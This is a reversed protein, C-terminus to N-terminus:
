DAFSAIVAAADPESLELVAAGGSTTRPVVPLDVSEPSMGRADGALRLADLLTMEDDIRLGPGLAGAVARITLPNRAGGVSGLLSTLFTRQRQVRGLDGTPDTVWQGDIQETYQRSRVYALAQTGDLRVRGAEAIDLGSAADRAPHPVEITIGGLADVMGAFSVFDIELYRHVPVGLSRVATILNAPGGAYTSNIRGPEGTSPDTVWLDRPISLMRTGGDGVRLVILTDARQGTVTTGLFAGADPADPDIGERTDSGVILYNTGSGGGGLADGVEVRELRSFQWAAFGLPLVLFLLVLV